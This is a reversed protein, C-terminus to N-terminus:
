RGQLQKVADILRQIARPSSRGVFKDTEDILISDNDALDTDSPLTDPNILRTSDNNISERMTLLSFKKDM